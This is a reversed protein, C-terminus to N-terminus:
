SSSDTIDLNAFEPIPLNLQDDDSDEDENLFEYGEALLRQGEELVKM